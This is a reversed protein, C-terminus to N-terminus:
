LALGVTLSIPAFQRDGFTRVYEISAGEPPIRARLSRWNDCIGNATPRAVLPKLQLLELRLPILLASLLKLDLALKLWQPSPSLRRRGFASNHPRGEIKDAEPGKTQKQLCGM